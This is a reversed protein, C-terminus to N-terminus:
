EMGAEGKEISSWWATMDAVKNVLLKEDIQQRQSDFSKSSEESSHRSTSGHSFTSPGDQSGGDMGAVINDGDSTSPFDSRKSPKSQRNSKYNYGRGGRAQSCASRTNCPTDYLEVNDPAASRSSHAQRLESPDVGHGSSAQTTNQASNTAGLARLADSLRTVHPCVGSLLAHATRTRRPSNEWRIVAQTLAPALPNATRTDKDWLARTTARQEILIAQTM